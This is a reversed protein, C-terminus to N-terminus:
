EGKALYTQLQDMTGTWGQTMSDFSREFTKMEDATAKYPTWSVIFKTKGGVMEEFTFTSLM